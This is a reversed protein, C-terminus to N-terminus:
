VGKSFKLTKKNQNIIYTTGNVFLNYAYYNESPMISSIVVLGRVKLSDNIYDLVSGKMM